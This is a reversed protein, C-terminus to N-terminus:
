FLYKLGLTLNNTLGQDTDFLLTDELQVAFDSSLYYEVGFKPGFVGSEDEVDKGGDIEIDLLSVGAVFGLYALINDGRGILDSNVRVTASPTIITIDAADTLMGAVSLGIGYEFRAEETSRTLTSGLYLLTTSDLKDPNTTVVSFTGTVATRDGIEIKEDDALVPIAVLFVLSAVAVVNWACRQIVPNEM